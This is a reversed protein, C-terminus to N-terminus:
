APPQGGPDVPGPVPFGPAPVEVWYDPFDVGHEPGRVRSWAVLGNWALALGENGVQILWVKLALITTAPIGNFLAQLLKIAISEWDVLGGRALMALAPALISTLTALLALIQAVTV